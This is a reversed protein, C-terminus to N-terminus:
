AVSNGENARTSAKIKLRTIIEDVARCLAQKDRIAGTDAADLSVLADKADSAITQLLGMLMDNGLLSNAEIVDNESM